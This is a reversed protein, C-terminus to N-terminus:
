HFFNAIQKVILMAALAIVIGVISYTVIKKGQDIRNEDGASTLYMVGGVILMILALVGVISLLFDLAKLAIQALSLPSGYGPTSPMTWGLIGSIEKLFSPAAIGIALGIMAATIAGKATRMRGEDGASTMYLIAGIIIFIIAITVIIGQLHNLLSGLVDQVTTFGLPNTFTVSNQAFSVNCFASLILIIAPVLLYYKKNKM